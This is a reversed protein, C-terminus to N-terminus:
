HLKFEVTGGFDGADVVAVRSSDLGELGVVALREVSKGEQDHAAFAAFRSAHLDGGGAVAQAGALRCDGCLLHCLAGGQAASRLESGRRGWWKLGGSMARRSSSPTGTRGAWRRRRGM